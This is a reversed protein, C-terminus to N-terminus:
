SCQLGYLLTHIVPPKDNLNYKLQMNNLKKNNGTYNDGQQSHWNLLGNIFPKAFRFLPLCFFQRPSQLVTATRRKAFIFILTETLYIAAAVSALVTPKLWEGDGNLYLM